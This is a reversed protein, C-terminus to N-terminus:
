ERIEKGVAKNEKVHQHYKYQRWIASLVPLSSIVIVAVIIPLIYSDINPVTEGLFYGITTLGIAWLFSGILSWTSYTARDMHAVGAAVPILSRIGPMFRSLLIALKGNKEFYLQAHAINDKGFFLSDERVFIRPGYRKGLEYGIEAGIATGSFLAVYLPLLSLYGKSALLGATLMLSDGPLPIFAAIVFGSEFLVLAFMGIYGVAQIFTTPDIIHLADM